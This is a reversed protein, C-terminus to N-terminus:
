LLVLLAKEMQILEKRQDDTKVGQKQITKEYEALQTYREREKYLEERESQISLIEKEYNEKVILNKAREKLLLYEFQLLGECKQYLEGSTRRLMQANEERQLFTSFSSDQDMAKIHDPKLKFDKFKDVLRSDNELCNLPWTMQSKIRANLEKQKISYEIRKEEILRERIVLDQERKELENERACLKERDKM